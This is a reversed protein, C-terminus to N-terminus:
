LLGDLLSPRQVKGIPNAGLPKVHRQKYGDGRGKRESKRAPRTASAAASTAAAPSTTDAQKLPEATTDSHKPRALGTSGAPEAPGAEGDGRRRAADQQQKLDLLELYKKNMRSAEAVDHKIIAERARNRMAKDKNVDTWAMGECMQLRWTYSAMSGRREQRMGTSMPRGNLAIVTSRADRVDSFEVWGERYRKCRRTGTDVARSITQFADEPKLYIRSISGYRGLLDRVRAPTTFPPIALIKVVGPLPADAAEGGERGESVEGRDDKENLADM